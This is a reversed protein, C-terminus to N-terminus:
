AGANEQRIRHKKLAMDLKPTQPMEMPIRRMNAPAISRDSGSVSDEPLATVEPDQMGALVVPQEVQLTGIYELISAQLARTHMYAYMCSKRQTGMYTGKPSHAHTDPHM